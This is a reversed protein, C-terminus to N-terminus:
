YDVGNNTDNQRIPFIYLRGKIYEKESIEISFVREIFLHNDELLGLIHKSIPLDVHKKYKKTATLVKNKDTVICEYKFCDYISNVIKNSVFEIKENNIVKTLMIKENEVNINLLDNKKIHLMNRIKQPIVIRCLEDLKINM